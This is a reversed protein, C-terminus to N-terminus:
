GTKMIMLIPQLLDMQTRDPRTADLKKSSRESKWKHLLQASKKNGYTFSFPPLDANIEAMQGMMSLQDLYLISGDQLTVKADAWDAETWDDFSKGNVELMFDKAGGLDATVPIPAWVGIAASKFVQENGVKVSFLAEPWL